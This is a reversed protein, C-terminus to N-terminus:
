DVFIFHINIYGKFTSRDVTAQITIKRFNDSYVLLTDPAGIKRFSAGRTAYGCIDVIQHEDTLGTDISVDTNNPLSEVVIRKVYIRKGDIYNNTPTIEGTKIEQKNLYKNIELM